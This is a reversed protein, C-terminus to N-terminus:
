GPRPIEGTACFAKYDAIMQDHDFCLSPLESLPFVKAALADDAGRPEGAATAVYVVSM